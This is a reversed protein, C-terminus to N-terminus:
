LKIFHKNSFKIAFYAVRMFPPIALGFVFFGVLLGIDAVDTITSLKLM